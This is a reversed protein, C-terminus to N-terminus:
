FEPSDTLNKKSINKRSNRSIQEEIFEMSVCDSEQLDNNDEMGASQSLEDYLDRIDSELSEISVYNEDDDRADKCQSMELVEQLTEKAESISTQVYSGNPSVKSKMPAKFKGFSQKVKKMTSPTKHKKKMEKFSSNLRAAPKMSNGELSMDEANSTKKTYSPSIKATSMKMKGKRKAIKNKM